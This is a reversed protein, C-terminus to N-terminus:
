ANEAGTLVRNIISSYERWSKIKNELYAKGSDTISYYKRVLKGDTPKEYSIVYGDKELTHLLPYITGTKPMVSKESIMELKQILEYGYMDKEQLIRLLLMDLNSTQFIKNGM